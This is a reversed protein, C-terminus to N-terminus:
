ANVEQRTKRLRDAALLHVGEATMLAKHEQKARRYAMFNVTKGVVANATKHSIGKVTGTISTIPNKM